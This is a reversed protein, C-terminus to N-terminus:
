WLTFVILTIFFIWFGVSPIFQMVFYYDRWFTLYLSTLCLQLALTFIIANSHSLLSEISRDVRTRDNQWLQIYRPGSFSTCLDVMKLSYKMAMTVFCCFIVMYYLYSRSMYLEYGKEITGGKRLKQLEMLSFYRNWWHPTHYIISKKCAQVTRTGNEQPGFFPLRDLFCNCTWQKFTNESGIENSMNSLSNVASLRRLTHRARVQPSWEVDPSSLFDGSRSVEDMRESGRTERTGPASSAVDIDDALLLRRKATALALETDNNAIVAAESEEDYEQLDACSVPVIAYTPGRFETMKVIRVVLEHSGPGNKLQGMVEDWEKRMVYTARTAIVMLILQGLIVVALMFPLPHCNRRLYECGM